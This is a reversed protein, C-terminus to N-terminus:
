LFFIEFGVVVEATVELISTSLLISLAVPGDGTACARCPAERHMHVPSFAYTAARNKAELRPGVFSLLFFIDPLSSRIDPLADRVHITSV